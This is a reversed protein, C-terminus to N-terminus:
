KGLGEWGGMNVQAAPYTSWSWMMHSNLSVARNVETFLLRETERGGRIPHQKAHSDDMFYIKWCCCIPLNQIVERSSCKLNCFGDKHLPNSAEEKRDAHFWPFAKSQPFPSTRQVKPACVPLFFLRAKFAAVNFHTCPNRCIRLQLEQTYTLLQQFWLTQFRCGRAVQTAARLSNGSVMKVIALMAM